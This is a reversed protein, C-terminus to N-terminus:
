KNKKSQTKKVKKAKKPKEAKLAKKKLCKACPELGKDKAEKETMETVDKNRIIPCDAQHYKKGHKTVYVDAAYAMTTGALMMAVLGMMMMRKLM